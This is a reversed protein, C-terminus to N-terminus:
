QTVATDATATATAATARRPAQGSLGLLKRAEEATLIGSEILAPLGVNAFPSAAAAADAAAPPLPPLSELARWEDDLLAGGEKMTKYSTAREALPPQVYDGANVHLRRGRPLAWSSLAATIKRGLPRLMARWHFDFLSTANAYTLGSPQELGILYPPVGFCAAIRQEDFVRLDLLAMDRPSLTLTDLKLGSGFVAPGGRRQQQQLAWEEHALQVQRRTLRQESTLVGWPIGGGDALDAGYSELAGASRLNGAAGQLPSLGNPWGALTLYRVHRLDGPFVETGAIFYRRLGYTPSREDRDFEVTVQDPDLVMFREPLLDASNWATAGVFLDGRTLLSVVCQVMFEGWDSFLRPDPNDTWEYQELDIPRGRETMGLPMSGLSNANLAVCSFVTSVRHGLAGGLTGAGNNWSPQWSSPLGAWHAPVLGPQPYAAALADGDVVPPEAGYHDPGVTNPPGNSPEALSPDRPFARELPRDAGIASSRRDRVVILEGSVPEGNGPGSV